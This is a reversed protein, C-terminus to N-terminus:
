EFYNYGWGEPQLISFDLNPKLGSQDIIKLFDFEHSFGFANIAILGRRFAPILTARNAKQSKSKAKQKKSKAKEDQVDISVFELLM